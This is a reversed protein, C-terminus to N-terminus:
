TVRGIILSFSNYSLFFTESQNVHINTRHYLARSYGNSKTPKLRNFLVEQLADAIIFRGHDYPKIKKLFQLSCREYLLLLNMGQFTPHIHDHFREKNWM